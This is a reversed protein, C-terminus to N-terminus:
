RSGVARVQKAAGVSSEWARARAVAAARRRRCEALVEDRDYRILELDSYARLEQWYKAGPPSGFEEAASRVTTRSWLKLFGRFM